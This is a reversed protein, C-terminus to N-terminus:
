KYFIKCITNQNKINNNPNNLQNIYETIKITEYINVLILGCDCCFIEGKTEDFLINSSQCYTCTKNYIKKM